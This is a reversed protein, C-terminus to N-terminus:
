LKSSLFEPKTAYWYSQIPVKPLSMNVPKHIALRRHGARYQTAFPSMHWTGHRKASRLRVLTSPGDFYARGQLAVLGEIRRAMAVCGQGGDPSRPLPAGCPSTSAAFDHWLGILKDTFFVLRM